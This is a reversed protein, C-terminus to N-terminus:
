NGSNSELQHTDPVINCEPDEGIAGITYSYTSATVTAQRNTGAPCFPFKKVYDGIVVINSFTITAGNTLGYDIAYQDKAGDIQRLNNICANQQSSQRAKIFSPIAIAALLGIIAVVIM